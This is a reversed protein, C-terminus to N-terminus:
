SNSDIKVIKIWLKIILLRIHQLSLSPRKCLERYLFLNVCSLDAGIQYFVKVIVICFITLITLFDRPWTKEWFLIGFVINFGKWFCM